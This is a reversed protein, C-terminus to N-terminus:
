REQRSSSQYSVSAVVQRLDSGRAQRVEGRRGHDGSHGPRDRGHHPRRVGARCGHDPCAGALFRFVPSTYFCVSFEQPWSTCSFWPHDETTFRRTLQELERRSLIRPDCAVGGNAGGFPVRVLANKATMWMALARVEDLDTSPHYHYRICGKGPVRIINHWVRYGTFVRASRGDM